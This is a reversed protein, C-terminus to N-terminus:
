PWRLDNDCENMWRYKMNKGDPGTGIFCSRMETYKELKSKIVGNIVYYEDRKIHTPIIIPIPVPIFVSVFPMFGSWGLGKNYIMIEEIESIKDIKDPAGYIMLIDEKNTRLDDITKQESHYTAAGIGFCGSLMMSCFIVIPIYKM